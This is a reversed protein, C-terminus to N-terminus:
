TMPSLNCNVGPIKPVSGFVMLQLSQFFADGDHNALSEHVDQAQHNKSSWVYVFVHHQYCKYQYVIYNFAKGNRIQFFVWNWIVNSNKLWVWLEGVWCKLDRRKWFVPRGFIGGHPKLRHKARQKAASGTSIPAFKINIDQNGFPGAAPDRFTLEATWAVNNGGWVCLTSYLPSVTRDSHSLIQLPFNPPEYYTLNVCRLVCSRQFVPHNIIYLHPKRMHPTNAVEM